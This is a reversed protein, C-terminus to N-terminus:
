VGGGTEVVLFLIAAEGIDAQPMSGSMSFLSGLLRLSPRLTQVDSFNIKPIRSFNTGYM